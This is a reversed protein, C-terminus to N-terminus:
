LRLGFLIEFSNNKVKLLDTEYANNLDPSYRFELLMKLPETSTEVGIGLDGGMNTRKFDDYVEGSLESEYGLFIDLRPGVFLYPSVPRTEFTVKALVPISLYDVRNDLKLPSISHGFEDTRPVEEVMGKQTYHVETLASLHPLSFWEIFVGFDLGARNKTDDFFGYIHEFDQNAIVVGTKLGYGKLLQAHAGSFCFFVLGIAIIIRKM